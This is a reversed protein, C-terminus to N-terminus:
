PITFKTYTTHHLRHPDKNERHRYWHFHSISFHHGCFANMLYWKLTMVFIDQAIHLMYRNKITLVSTSIELNTKNKRCVPYPFGLNESPISIRIEGM